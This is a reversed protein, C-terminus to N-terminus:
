LAQQQTLAQWVKIKVAELLDYKDKTMLKMRDFIEMVGHVEIAIDDVLLEAKGLM